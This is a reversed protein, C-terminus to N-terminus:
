RRWCSRRAPPPPPARALTALLDDGVAQHARARPTGQRVLPRCCPRRGGEVTYQLGGMAAHPRRRQPPLKFHCRLSTGEHTTGCRGLEAEM